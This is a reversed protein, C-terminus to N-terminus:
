EVALIGSVITEDYEAAIPNVCVIMRVKGEGDFFNKFLHTISSDRYRVIQLSFSVNNM